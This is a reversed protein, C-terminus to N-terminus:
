LKALISQTRATTAAAKVQDDREIKESIADRLWDVDSQHVYSGTARKIRSIQALLADKAGTIVEGDLLLRIKVDQLEHKPTTLWSHAKEVVFRIVGYVSGIVVVKYAWFMAIVWLATGPLKAVMDVLIKLEEM